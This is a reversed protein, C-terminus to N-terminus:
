DVTLNKLTQEMQARFIERASESAERPIMMPKEFIMECRSFPLPIQFRDWSKVCIKRSVNFTVPVLPHGTLQALSIVGGQVVYRPGRPGDPTVALDFGREACTTLEKLAQPGRRSTSGRVAQMGFRALVAQLMGGDRSASILAAIGVSGTAKKLLDAYAIGTLALRNHWVCYIVPARMSGERLGSRDIWDLRITLALLRIFIFILWAALRQRWGPQEPVVVGSSKVGAGAM